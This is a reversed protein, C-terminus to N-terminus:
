VSLTAFGPYSSIEADKTVDCEKSSGERLHHWLGDCNEYGRRVGHHMVGYKFTFSNQLFLARLGTFTKNLSVIYLCEIKLIFKPFTRTYNISKHLRM